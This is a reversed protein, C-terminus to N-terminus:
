QDPPPALLKDRLWDISFPPRIRKAGEKIRLRELPLDLGLRKKENALRLMGSLHIRDKNASNPTLGERDLKHQWWDVFDLLQDREIESIPMHGVVDM